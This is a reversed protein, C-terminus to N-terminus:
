YGYLERVPMLITTNMVSVLRALASDPVNAQKNTNTLSDSLDVNPEQSIYCNEEQGSCESWISSGGLM